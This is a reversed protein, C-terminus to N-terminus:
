LFTILDPTVVPEVLTIAILTTSEPPRPTPPAAPVTAPTDEFRAAIALPVHVSAM